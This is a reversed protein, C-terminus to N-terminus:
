VIFGDVVCTGAGLPGSFFCTRQLNGTTEHQRKVVHEEQQWLLLNLFDVAAGRLLPALVCPRFYSKPGALKVRSCSLTQFCMILAVKNENTEKHDATKPARAHARLNEKVLEFVHMYLYGHARTFFHARLIQLLLSVHACRAQKSLRM